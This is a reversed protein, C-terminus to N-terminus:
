APARRIYATSGSEGLTGPEYYPYRVLYETFLTAVYNLMLTVVVISAGFRISISGALVSWLMGAAMGALM